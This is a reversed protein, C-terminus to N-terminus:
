NDANRLQNRMVMKERANHVRPDMARRWLPPILALLVMGPYGTPLQPSDDFTRLAQYRRVPHVHHDAHRQLKFLFYNSLRHTANWAHMITVKEYNGPAIERRVLGYLRARIFPTFRNASVRQPRIARRAFM